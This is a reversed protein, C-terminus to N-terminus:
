PACRLRPPVSPPRRACFPQRALLPSSASDAGGSRVVLLFYLLVVRYALFPFIGCPSRPPFSSLAGALHDLSNSRLFRDRVLRSEGVGHGARGAPLATVATITSGRLKNRVALFSWIIVRLQRECAMKKSPLGGGNIRAM